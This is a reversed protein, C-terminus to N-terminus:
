RPSRSTVFTEYISGLTMFVEPPYEEIAVEFGMDEIHCILDVMRLSDVLGTDWLNTDGDVGEVPGPQVGGPQIGTLFSLVSDIFAQLTM